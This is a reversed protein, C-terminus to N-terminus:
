LVQVSVFLFTSLSSVWCMFKRLTSLKRLANIIFCRLSIWSVLLCTKVFTHLVMNRELFKMCITYHNHIYYGSKFLKFLQM